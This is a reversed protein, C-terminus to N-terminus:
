DEAPEYCSMEGPNYCQFIGNLRGRGKGCFQVNKPNNEQGPGGTWRPGREWYKVPCEFGSIEKIRCDEYHTSYDLHKCPKM